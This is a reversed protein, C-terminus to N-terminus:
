EEEKKQSEEIMKRIEEGVEKKMEAMNEFAEIAREKVKDDLDDILKRLIGVVKPSAIEGVAWAASLRMWKDPSSAMKKLIEIASEPNYQYIAVCANARVRNNPDSLYPRLMKEAVDPDSITKPIMEVSDARARVHPNVDTIVTRGGTGKIEVKEVKETALARAQQNLLEILRTQQQEFDKELRNKIEEIDSQTKGSASQSIQKIADGQGEIMKNISRAVREELEEAEEDSEKLKKEIRKQLDELQYQGENSTYYVKRLILILIVGMIFFSGGIIIGLVSVIKKTKAAKNEIEEIKTQALQLNKDSKGLQDKLNKRQNVLRNLKSRYTNKKTQEEEVKKKLIYVEVEQESKRPEPEPEIKKNVKYLLSILEGAGSEIELAREFHQKAVEFESNNYQRKGEEVISKYLLKKAKDNDELELVREFDQIAGIYDGRLYEKVARDMLDETQTFAAKYIAFLILVALLITKNKM